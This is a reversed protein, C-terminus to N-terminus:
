RKMPNGVPPAKRLPMMETELNENKSSSRNILPAVTEVVNRVDDSFKAMAGVMGKISEADLTKEKAAKSQVRNTVFEFDVSENDQCNVLANGPEDPEGNPPAYVESAKSCCRMYCCVSIVAGIVAIVIAGLGFILPFVWWDWEDSEKEAEEIHPPRYNGKPDEVSHLIVNGKKGKFMCNSRTFTLGAPFPYSGYFSERCYVDLTESAPLSIVSTANFKCGVRYGLPQSYERFTCSDNLHSDGLIYQACAISIPTDSFKNVRCMLGECELQSSLPDYETVFPLFRTKSKPEVLYRPVLIKNDNIFPLIRSITAKNDMKSIEFTCEAKILFDDPKTSKALPQITITKSIYDSKGLDLAARLDLPINSLKLVFKNDVTNIKVAEALNGLTALDDTGVEGSEWNLRSSLKELLSELLLYSASPYIKIAMLPNLTEENAPSEPVNTLLEYQYKHERITRIVPDLISKMKVFDKPDQPILSKPSECVVDTLNHWNLASTIEHAIQRGNPTLSVWALYRRYQDMEEEAENSDLQPTDSPLREIPVLSTDSGGGSDEAEAEGSEEDESSSDEDEAESSDESEDESGDESDNPLDNLDIFGVFNGNNQLTNAIISLSIPIKEIPKPLGKLHKLITLMDRYHSVQLPRLGVDFCEGVSQLLKFKKRLVYIDKDALKLIPKLGVRQYRYINSKQSYDDVIREFDPYYELIKTFTPIYQDLDLNLKKKYEQSLRIEQHFILAAKTNCRDAVPDAKGLKISGLSLLVMAVLKIFHIWTRNM